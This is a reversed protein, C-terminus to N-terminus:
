KSSRSLLGVLSFHYAATADMSNPFVSACTTARHSKDAQEAADAAHIEAKLPGPHRAQMLHFYVWKTPSHQRLM